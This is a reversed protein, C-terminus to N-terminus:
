LHGEAPAHCATTKEGGFEGGGFGASDEPVQMMIMIMIIIIIIIIIM